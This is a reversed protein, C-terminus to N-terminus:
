WANSPVQAFTTVSAFPHYLVNEIIRSSKQNCWRCWWGRTYKLDFSSRCLYTQAGFMFDHIGNFRLSLIFTYISWVKNANRGNRYAIIFNFICSVRPWECNIGPYIIICCVLWAWVIFCMFYFIKVTIIHFIGTRSRCVWPLRWGHFPFIWVIFRPSTSISM